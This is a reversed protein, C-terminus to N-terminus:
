FIRHEYMLNLEKQEANILEQQKKIMTDIPSVNLPDFAKDTCVDGWRGGHNLAPGNVRAFTLIPKFFQKSVFQGIGEYGICFHCTRISEIVDAIPTDYDILKVNYQSDCWDVVKDWDSLNMHNKKNLKNPPLKNPLWVVVTDKNDTPSDKTKWFTRLTSSSRIIGFHCSEIHYNDDEHFTLKVDIDSTDFMDFLAQARDIENEGNKNDICRAGSSRLHLHIPSKAVYAIQFYYTFTTIVDGYGRPLRHHIERM